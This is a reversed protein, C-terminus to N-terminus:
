HLAVVLPRGAPDSLPCCLATVPEGLVSLLSPQEL